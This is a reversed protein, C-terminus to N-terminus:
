KTMQSTRATYQIKNKVGLIGFGAHGLEPITRYEPSKFGNKIFWSKVEDPTHLHNYKPTFTDFLNLTKLWLPIIRRKRFGLIHKIRLQINLIIAGLFCLAKQLKRPFPRIFVRILKVFFEKIRYIGILDSRYLWVFFSGGEKLLPVLADFSKMTNDTHHLVGDSYIIDFINEAFPPNQVDGQVYHLMNNNLFQRRHMHAQEVSNSYDMAIVNGGSGAIVASLTGNGCGADLILLDNLSDKPKNIYYFFYDLREKLKLEWTLEGYQYMSWQDSFSFDNVINNIKPFFGPSADSLIHNEFSEVFKIPMGVEPLHLRPVGKWIAYRHGQKCTLLGAWIDGDKEEYVSLALTGKCSPCRLLQLLDKNM